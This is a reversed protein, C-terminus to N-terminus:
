NSREVEFGFDMIMPLPDVRMAQEFIFKYKGALAFRVNRKIPVKYDFIDGVGSGLWEGKQNSLVVEMTDRIEKGDPYITNVFLFLNRYPYTDGHRVKLYVNNLNKTDTIEMEFVAKDKAQWEEDQFTKYESFIRNRQCGTLLLVFLFFAVLKIATKMKNLNLALRHM